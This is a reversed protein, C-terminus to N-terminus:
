LEKLIEYANEINLPKYFYYGQIIDCNINRLYEYQIEDEVGEAVVELNFYHSLEILKEIIYESKNDKGIYDIFSKDIKIVDIPLERLYSFSSYGTGFDDLAITIGLKKLDYIIKHNKTLSNIMTSETIELEINKPSVKYKKLNAEIVNVIESDRLQIPSINVAVKIPDKSISNVQQCMKIADEIIFKGIEIIDGSKEALKIFENPPINGFIKSNWRILYEFGRIKKSSTIVKPQLVGYLEKKDLVKKFEDTIKLSRKLKSEIEEDFFKIQNKGLSKANYLAIDAKKLLSIIEIGDDKLFSVGISISCYIDNGDIKIPKDFIKVMEKLFKLLQKKSEFNELSIVFEDGAFRSLFGRKDLKKNIVICFEKLLKDGLDHGYNDNVDKVNGLGICAIAFNKNYKLSLEIKEKAYKNLFRRNPQNTVDDYYSMFYIKEEKEKRDSVDGLSGYIIQKGDENYVMGRLRIWLMGKISNMRFECEHYEEHGEVCVRYVDLIKYRDKEIINSLFDSLTVDLVKSSKVYFISHLNGQLKMTNEEINWQFMVDRTGNLAFRYNKESEKLLLEQKKKDVLDFATGAMGYKGNKLERCGKVEIPIKKGEESKVNFEIVFNGTYDLKVMNEFFEIVYEKHEEVIYKQLKEYSDIIDNTKLTERAISSIYLRRESEYWEWIVGNLGRIARKYRSKNMISEKNIILLENEKLVKQKLLFYLVLICLVIVIDKIDDFTIICLISVLTIAIDVIEFCKNLAFKTKGM